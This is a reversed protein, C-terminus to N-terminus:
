LWDVVGVEDSGKSDTRYLRVPLNENLDLVCIRNGFEWISVKKKETDVSIMM